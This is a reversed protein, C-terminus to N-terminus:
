NQDARRALRANHCNERGTCTCRPGCRLASIMCPCATEECTQGEKACGCGLMLVEIKRLGRLKVAYEDLARFSTAAGARGAATVALSVGATMSAFVLGLGAFGAGVAGSIIAVTRDSKIRARLARVARVTDERTSTAETDPLELGFHQCM